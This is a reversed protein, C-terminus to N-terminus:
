LLILVVLLRNFFNPGYLRLLMVINRVSVSEFYTNLRRPNFHSHVIISGIFRSISASTAVDFSNDTDSDFLLLLLLLARGFSSMSFLYVYVQTYVTHSNAATAVPTTTPGAAAAAAAVMTTTITVTAHDDDISCLAPFSIHYRRIYRYQSCQFLFIIDVTTGTSLVSVCYSDDHPPGYIM